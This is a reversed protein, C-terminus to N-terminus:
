LKWNRSFALLSRGKGTLKYFKKARGPGDTTKVKHAEVLGQDVLKLTLVRSVPAGPAAYHYMGNKEAIMRVALARGKAEDLVGTGEPRGPNFQRNDVNGDKTLRTGAFTEAAAKATNAETNM